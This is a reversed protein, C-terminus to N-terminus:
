VRDYPGDMAMDVSSGERLSVMDIVLANVRRLLRESSGIDALSGRRAPLTLFGSLGTSMRVIEPGIARRDVVFTRDYLAGSTEVIRACRFADLETEEADDRLEASSESLEAAECREPSVVSVSIESGEVGCLADDDRKWEREFREMRRDAEDASSWWFGAM